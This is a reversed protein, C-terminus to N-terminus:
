EAEIKKTIVWQQGISLINNVLWYLVLGSPFWLFFFTFIFPLAMMIKAQMPDPPTPNLRQQIIMSVGMLVPLVFYPDHSSLDDLWFMFPAHRLEVSELLVWYLSIFVPIQVLIPWCGGLPNIKEAKYLEMMAQNLKQRDDGHRDRLATLKPTLKRMRAMSRYSTASLHFFALKILFTLVIISWGWNGIVNNIFLLAWFLPQAIFFLFGYDVTRELGPAAATMRAQDKPGIYANISLAGTAGPKVMLPPTIVGIIYEARPSAYTYYHNQQEPSPLWAGVFYHQIMAAWGGEVTRKIDREAMDAFDIKDYPEEASSLVGGMYTHIFVNGDEVVQTRKFQGFMEARVATPSGNVLEHRVEIEYSDRRLRFVKRVEIGSASRWTMPVELEEAGPALVFETKRVEYLATDDPLGEGLLGSQAIFINPLEDNLLRFADSDLEISVRHKNLDLQKLTGGRTDIRLSMLDTTAEILTGSPEQARSQSPPADGSSSVPPASAPKDSTFTSSPAAPSEESGRETAIQEPPVVLPKPGYDKQWEQWMLFLVFALAIFLM